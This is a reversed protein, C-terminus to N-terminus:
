TNRWGGPPELELCEIPYEHVLKQRLGTCSVIHYQCTFSSQCYHCRNPPGFIRWRQLTWLHLTRFVGDPAELAVVM